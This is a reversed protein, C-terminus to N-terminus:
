SSTLFNIDLNKLISSIVIRLPPLSDLFNGAANARFIANLHLLLFGYYNITEANKVPKRQSNKWNKAKWGHIWETIGKQVYTSDTHVRVQSVDRKHKELGVIAAMLEMQNNTPEEEYGYLEKEKEGYRLLAGWGGPGPNGRCAGDTFVEVINNNNKDM